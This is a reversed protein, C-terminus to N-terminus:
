GDGLHWLCTFVSQRQHASHEPVSSFEKSCQDGFEWPKWGQSGQASISRSARRSIGPHWTQKYQGFLSMVSEWLKRIAQIGVTPFDSHPSPSTLLATPVKHCERSIPASERLLVIVRDTLNENYSRRDKRALTQVRCHPSLWQWFQKKPLEWKLWKSMGWGPKFPAVLFGNHNLHCAEEFMSLFWLRKCLIGSFSTIKIVWFM